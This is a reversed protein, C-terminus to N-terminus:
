ISGRQPAARGIRKARARRAIMAIAVTALALAGPEPAFVADVDAAVLEPHSSAGDYRKNWTGGGPTYELIDEDEFAVGGVTGSIDFSLALHGNADIRDAGDLDAGAPVGAASGDFYLVWDDPQTSALQLLDEDDATVSGLTATVDLSLLLDGEIWGIADIKAGAPISHDAGRVEISYLSGNWRVVDRPTVDVGGSLSAAIDLSFLIDGGPAISYGSVDVATPLTGLDIKTVAGGGADEVVDEDAAATGSLNVTVDTSIEVAARASFPPALALMAGLLVRMADRTM